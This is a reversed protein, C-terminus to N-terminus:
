VWSSKGSSHDKFAYWVQGGFEWTCFSILQGSSLKRKTYVWTKCQIGNTSPPEEVFFCSDSHYFKNFIQIVFLSHKFFYGPFCELTCM